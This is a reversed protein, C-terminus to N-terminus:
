CYNISRPCLFTVGTSYYQQCIVVLSFRCKRVRKLSEHNSTPREVTTRREHGHGNAILSSVGVDSSPAANQARNSMIKGTVDRTSVEASRTTPQSRPAPVCSRRPNLLSQFYKRSRDPWHTYMIGLM